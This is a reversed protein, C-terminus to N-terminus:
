KLTLQGIVEKEIVTGYDNIELKKYNDNTFIVLIDSQKGSQKLEELDVSVLLTEYTIKDGEKAHIKFPKGKLEVTDIGIHLLIEIGTNTKIGIAHKTPFVSTVVGNIPSFIDGNIPRVAFGDGLMKKSFVEDEVETIPILEGKAVSYIKM